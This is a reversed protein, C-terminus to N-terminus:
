VVWLVNSRCTFRTEVYKKGEEILSRYLAQMNEQCLPESYDLESEITNHVHDFLYCKGDVVDSYVNSDDDVSGYLLLPRSAGNVDVLVNHTLNYERISNELFGTPIGQGNLLDKIEIPYIFRDFNDGELVM